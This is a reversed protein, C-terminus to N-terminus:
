VRLGDKRCCLLLQRMYGVRFTKNMLGYVIWNISHNLFGCTVTWIGLEASVPRYVNVINVVALPLYLIVCCVFVTLLSRILGIDAPSLRHRGSDKRKRRPRSATKPTDSPSVHLSNFLCVTPSLQPSCNSDSSIDGSPEPVALSACHGEPLDANISPLVPTENVQREKSQDRSRGSNRSIRQGDEGEGSCCLEHHSGVKPGSGNRATANNGGDEDPKVGGLVVVNLDQEAPTVLLM